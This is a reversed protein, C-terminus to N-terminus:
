GLALSPPSGALERAGEAALGLVDVHVRAAAVRLDVGLIAGDAAPGADYVDLGAVRGALRAHPEFSPLSDHGASM